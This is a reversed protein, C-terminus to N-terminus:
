CVFQKHNIKVVQRENRGAKGLGEVPPAEDWQPVETRLVWIQGGRYFIRRAGM